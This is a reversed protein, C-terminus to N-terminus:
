LQVQLIFHPPANFLRSLAETVMRYHIDYEQLGKQGCKDKSVVIRNRAIVGDLRAMGLDFISENAKNAQNDNGQTM